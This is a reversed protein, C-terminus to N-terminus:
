KARISADNRVYKSEGLPMGKAELCNPANPQLDFSREIMVAATPFAVLPHVVHNTIM